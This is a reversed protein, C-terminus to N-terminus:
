GKLVKGITEMFLPIVLPKTIYDTFGASMAIEIEDSMALASVAIVPIGRTEPYKQLERFAAVGDMEPLQIDMLILDPRCSKAIEIGDAPHTACYLETQSEAQLIQKVLDLTQLNDEIYLIKQLGRTKSQAVDSRLSKTGVKVPSEGTISPLVIKFSCGKGLETEVTLAGGMLEVLSKSICLGIGTGQVEGYEQGLRNFPEFLKAANGQSLGPGNDSVSVWVTGDAGLGGDITVSDADSEYKIANNLLNLLVQNFAKRDARALLKGEDKLLNRITINKQEALPTLQSLLDKVRQGADINELTVPMSGTEIKSLDLVDEVLELLHEGAHVIHDLHSQRKEADLDPNLNMLQGFGIIANLPTRFEHNMGSLYEAKAANAKDAEEKSLALAIQTEAMATVDQSAGTISIVEGAENRRQVTFTLLCWFPKSHLDSFDCEVNTSEGTQVVKNLAETILKQAKSPYFSSPFPKGFYDSLNSLGLQQEGVPTMMALTYGPGVNKSIEQLCVPSTEILTRNAEEVAKSSTIDMSDATIYVLGDDADFYPSITTQYWIIKGDIEFSYEITNTHGQSALSMTDQFLDRTAQPAASTPFVNGYLDEVRDIKLGTVGANSMFHLKFDPDFIKHCVPSGQVLANVNSDETVSNLIAQLTPKEM